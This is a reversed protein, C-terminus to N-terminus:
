ATSAARRAHDIAQLMPQLQAEWTYRARVHEQAAQGIQEAMSPNALLRLVAASWEGPHDAVILHGGARAEIGAAAAPSCVVPRASAMAELVKNQVGRAMRLPAVVVAADRLYPRVDPVAGIVRVGPIRALARVRRGPSRGVVVFEVDGVEQRLLPLVQTAFFVVAQVNPAYDLVGTFLIRKGPAPPPQPLFYDVDVGNGVVFLGPRPGVHERYLDAESASVLCVAHALPTEGRELRRLRRSEAAYLWRLPWSTQAALQRWKYSDVDVLDLVHALQPGQKLLARAHYVMGSCFTLLVDYPQAAHWSLIQRALKREHFFSPTIPGGVMWAWAARLFSSGRNLKVCTWRQASAALVQRQENTPRRADTCAVDVTFHRALFHLLNWARIRDGRDPPYPFRHTLLLL